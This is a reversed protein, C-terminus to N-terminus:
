VDETITPAATGIGRQQKEVFHLVPRRASSQALVVDGVTRSSKSSPKSERHRNHHHIPTEYGDASAYISGEVSTTMAQNIHGHSNTIQPKHMAYADIEQTRQWTSEKSAHRRKTLRAITFVVLVAAALVGVCLVSAIVGPKQFLAVQTSGMHCESSVDGSLTRTFYEESLTEESNIPQLHGNIVFRRLCGSFQGRLANVGLQVRKLDSSLITPLVMRSVAQKGIGDVKFTITKRDESLELVVEHWNGDDM